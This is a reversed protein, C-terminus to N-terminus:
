YTLTVQPRVSTSGIDTVGPASLTPITLAPPLSYIRVPDARFLQWPNRNLEDLEDFSMARAFVSVFYIVSFWGLNDRFDRGIQVNNCHNITNSYDTTNTAHSGNVYITRSASGNTVFAVFNDEGSGSVTTANNILQNSSNRFVFSFNTGSSRTVKFIDPNGADRESYIVREGASGLGVLNVFSVVTSQDLGALIRTDSVRWSDSNSAPNGAYSIGRGFAGAKVITESGRVLVKNSSGFVGRCDRSWEPAIVLEGAPQKYHRRPLIIAAM